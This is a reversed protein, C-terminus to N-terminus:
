YSQIGMRAMVYRLSHSLKHIKCGMMTFGVIVVLLLVAFMTIVVMAHDPPSAPSEGMRLAPASTQHIYLQQRLYENQQQLARLNMLLSRYEKVHQEKAQQEKAQQEKVHQEKAQQEKVHQEKAQQEKAQQEKAQQDSLKKTSFSPYATRGWADDLSSVATSM